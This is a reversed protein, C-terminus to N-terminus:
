KRKTKLARAELFDRSNPCRVQRWGKCGIEFLREKDYLPFHLPKEIVGPAPVQVHVAAYHGHTDTMAMGFHGGGGDFLHVCERVGGVDIVM